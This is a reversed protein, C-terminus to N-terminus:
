VPKFSISWAGFNYDILVDPPFDSLLLVIFGANNSDGLRFFILAVFIDSLLGVVGRCGTSLVGVCVLIILIYLIFLIERQSLFNREIIKLAGGLLLERNKDARAGPSRSLCFCPAPAVHHSAGKGYALWVAVWGTV